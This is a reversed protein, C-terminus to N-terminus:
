DKKKSFVLLNHSGAEDPKFETPRENGAGGVRVKIKEGDFAYIGLNDKADEGDGGTFHFFDITKPNALENVRMEGKMEIVNGDGRDLRATVANGKVTMLIALEENEGAKAAWSGQFKGLDGPIPKEDTKVRAWTTLNPPGGEGAEFKTPRDNGPGGACITWSDGDLKYIGPNEPLENGQPGTFKVWDLTKPSAKEDLKIEGKLKFDGGNPRSGALEIVSDKISLTIPIDKNPGVKATWTGQLRALDGKPEDAASAPRNAAALSTAVILALSAISRM